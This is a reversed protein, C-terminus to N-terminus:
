EHINCQQLYPHDYNIHKSWYSKYKGIGIDLWPKMVGDYHLVAAQEVGDHGVGAEHGLGLKHWRRDLIVTRNYFTAWGLPLSGAKWLQRTHGLQLYKNYLATLKHRRWEQLDFLNMGFAWTCAKADFRKIVFPDSFNIFKDMRRFSPEGERCTDVAGIVKGKMNLSWLGALDKQVVVDHDFLVIKNLQPFVDPLYFRLHNLASTYRSDRSNLQKLTSNYNASLGKFDVLSQIQITAKGPPNLLFWMSITPLNLSDTVIHFVIKEPEMASSVTSNVVVACALVNDSFVAYHYLDADHVRQQNPLQREEPSLAFYEATLRMSLCHLGKPTTRGSLQVLYTAQNKQARVQEEANYTMARLKLAMASCDPFVRSAKSLTVELSRKKQLASRSLDSDKNAASVARESEKIRLRLEKVLHSNSGPPTMSLYAKARILDDKMQKVKEDTFIRVPSRMNQDHRVTAQNSQGQLKAESRSTVTEQPIQRNEERSEHNTRELPISTNGGRQSRKSGRDIEGINGYKKSDNNEESTSYSIRSGLEKEDYVVLKPGKLGEGEEQEIANLQVSDRRYRLTSLDSILEKRGVSVFLIPALVTLCLLSLLFIRQWRRFKKM